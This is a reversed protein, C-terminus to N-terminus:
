NPKGIGEPSEESELSKRLAQINSYIASKSKKWDLWTVTMAFVYVGGVFLYASLFGYFPDTIGFYRQFV